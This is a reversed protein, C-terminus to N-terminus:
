QHLVTDILKTVDGISIQGDGDTDAAGMDFGNVNDSLLYDILRTVDGVGVVGDADADGLPRIDQFFSWDSTTQYAELSGAPVYLTAQNFVVDDFNYVNVRVGDVYQTFRDLRPPTTALCTVSTINPCKLFMAGMYAIGSGITVKTLGSCEVFWLDATYPETVNVSNPITASKLGNCQWFAYQGISTVSNPININELSECVAFAYAGITTVGDGFDVDTLGYCLFFAEDGITVVSNPISISTLTFCRDFANNGITTVTNPIVTNKCGFILTNSATEIIANCNDRSDFVPNGTAINIDTLSECCSFAGNGITTVSSSIDVNTLDACSWFAENGITTISNPIAISTLGSGCFAAEGITNVSTPIVTNKCGSMLVNSETKIIANCNDRSDYVPNGDEVIISEISSCWEFAREGISTVSNPIVISTLGICGDFAYDGISTVSNPINIETLGECGFFARKGISTVSSPIVVATLNLFNHFMYDGIRTVTNPIVFVTIEEGNLFLQAGNLMPNALDQFSINCWAELDSIFVKHLEWCGYFAFEGISEVSNGMVVSELSECEQFANSGITTVSNPITVSNLDTCRYFAGHGITLVSNPMTIETIKSGSALNAPILQVESGIALQEINSTLMDGNSACNVANWTLSTLLGCNQFANSGISSVSEPITIETIQSETAFNAPIVVVEPGITVQEFNSTSLNGMDACNVANWTLSTINDCGDFVPYRRTRYKVILSTVSKGITVDTLGTCGSFANIGIFQVNDPIVISTLNTCNKFCHGSMLPDSFNRPETGIKTVTSPIIVSTLDSCDIFAYDGIATVTFAVGDHTVTEPIVVEGSYSLYETTAGTVTATTGSTSYYIGGEEFSIALATSATALMALLFLATRRLSHIITKMKMM